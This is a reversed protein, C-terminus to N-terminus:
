TSLYKKYWKVLVKNRREQYNSVSMRQYEEATDFTKPTIVPADVLFCSIFSMIGYVNEFDSNRDVPHPGRAWSPVDKYHIDYFQLRLKQSRIDIYKGSQNYVVLLKQKNFSVKPMRESWCRGEYPGADIAAGSIADVDSLLGHEERSVNKGKGIGNIKEQFSLYDLLELEEGSLIRDGRREGEWDIGSNADKISQISIGYCEISILLSAISNVDM